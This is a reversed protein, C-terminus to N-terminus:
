PFRSASRDGPHAIYLPGWSPNTDHMLKLLSIMRTFLPPIDAGEALGEVIAAAVVHAAYVGEPLSTPLPETTKLIACVNGVIEEDQNRWDQIELLAHDELSALRHRAVTRAVVAASRRAATADIPFWGLRILSLDANTEDEIMQAWTAAGDFSLLRVTSAALYGRLIDAPHLDGIPGENRLRAADGFAANLGRFYGILGIGAAPGMNLIGLVDSATEDIRRAWYRALGRGLNQDNLADFVAATLEEDLGIDAHLIDHGATEHGLAGWALLGRRAHAPPLSVIGAGVDFMKATDVPWTYPGFDPNGWKVLPPVAGLDPPKIGQRDSESLYGDYLDTVVEQFADTAREQYGMGNQLIAHAIDFMLGAPGEGSPDSLLIRNFWRPGLQVLTAAFPDHVTHRYLPPLKGRAQFLRTLLEEYDAPDAPGPDQDVGALCADEVCASLNGIDISHAAQTTAM